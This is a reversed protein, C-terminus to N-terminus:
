EQGHLFFIITYIRTNEGTQPKWLKTFTISTSFTFLHFYKLWVSKQEQKRGDELEGTKGKEEKKTWTKIQENSTIEEKWDTSGLFEGSIFFM